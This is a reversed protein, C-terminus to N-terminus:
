SQPPSVEEMSKADSEDLFLPFHSRLTLVPAVEATPSSATRVEASGLGHAGVTQAPHSCGRLSRKKGREEQPPCCIRSAASCFSDPEKVYHNPQPAPILVDTGAGLQTTTQTQPLCKIEEMNFKKRMFTVHPNEPMHCPLMAIATAKTISVSIAM